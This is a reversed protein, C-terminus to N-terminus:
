TDYQLLQVDFCWEKEVPLYATACLRVIWGHGVQSWPKVDVEVFRMAMGIERWSTDLMRMMRKPTSRRVISRVYTAIAQLSPKRLSGQVM